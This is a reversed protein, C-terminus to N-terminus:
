PELTGGASIVQEPTDVDLRAADGIEVRIVPVNGNKIVARAGVDGTLRRLEDFLASPFIVPNGPEGNATAQVISPAKASSFASILADLHAATLAPMDSLSIMIGAPSAELVAEVGCSISSGIGLHYQKNRVSRIELGHLSAEIAASRHGTVVVVHRASSRLATLVSKRVLTSGEFTSLLKHGSRPGMRSSGGAALVVVSVSASTKGVVTVM